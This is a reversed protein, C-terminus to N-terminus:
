RPVLRELDLRLVIARARAPRTRRIWAKLGTRAFVSHHLAFVSFFAIDILVPLWVSGAPDYRAKRFGSTYAAGFYVLSIVFVAGGALAVGLKWPAPAPDRTM